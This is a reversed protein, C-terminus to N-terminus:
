KKGVNVDSKAVKKELIDVTLYVTKEISFEKKAKISLSCKGIKKAKIKGDEIEFIDSDTGYVIDYVINDVNSKIPITMTDGVHLQIIEKTLELKTEPFIENEISEIDLDINIKSIIKDFLKDIKEENKSICIKEKKFSNQLVISYTKTFSDFDKSITVNDMNLINGKIKIIM